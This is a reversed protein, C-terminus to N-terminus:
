FKEIFEGDKWMENLYGIKESLRGRYIFLWILKLTTEVIPIFTKSVTTFEELTIDGRFIFSFHCVLNNFLLISVIVAWFGSLIDRWNKAYNLKLGLYGAIKLQREFLNGADM